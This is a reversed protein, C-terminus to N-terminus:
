KGKAIRERLILSFKIKPTLREPVIIKKGTKLNMASRANTKVRKFSFYGLFRVEEGVNISKAIEELFQELVEEVQSKTLNDKNVKKKIKLSDAIRSALLSKGVIVANIKETM